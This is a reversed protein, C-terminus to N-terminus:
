HFNNRSSKGRRTCDQTRAANNVLWATRACAIMAKTPTCGVNVCTGGIFAKEVIATKWGANALKKSLPTGGQGSGIIVAKYKDM